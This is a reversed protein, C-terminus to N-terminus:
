GEGRAARESAERALNNLYDTYTEDQNLLRVKRCVTQAWTPGGAILAVHSVLDIYSSRLIYAVHLSAGCPERELETAVQWNITAQQIIPELRDRHAHYFPNCPIDLALAQFAGALVPRSVLQDGDVVDDWVHAADTIALLFLAANEDGKAAWRYLNLEEDRSM